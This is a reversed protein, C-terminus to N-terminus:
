TTATPNHDSTDFSVVDCTNYFADSICATPDRNSADSTNQTSKIEVM